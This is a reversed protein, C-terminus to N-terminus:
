RGGATISYHTGLSKQFIRLRTTSPFGASALPLRELSEGSITSLSEILTTSYNNVKNVPM